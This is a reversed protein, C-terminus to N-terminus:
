RSRDIAEMRELLTPHSYHYRSYWPHPHLNTLNEDSLRLLASKLAEPMGALKVSFADAEFEHRRSIWASVPELFFTFVGSGLIFLGLAAHLSPQAFGFATFLPQWDILLSLVYLSALMGGLGTVLRKHIHRAKYHGIEHALVALSEDVPTSEVLTDFLVIRPRFFGTFYANSHGSRRSADMVYLGRTKFGAKEALAELRSKLEGDALPSFRNFLPAILTPYLWLMVVQFLALFVFLWLWWNAGSYAMFAYVGYLLPLGIVASLILGKVADVLWSKWTQRNFGFRNEIVFTYYLRFPLMALSFPVSLAVLFAVFLHATHVDGLWGMLASELWPLWGSFLVLLVLAAGYGGRVLSYRGKALTYQYSREATDKSLKDKLPEPIQGARSKVHNLNLVELTSEVALDLFFFLLFIALIWYTTM